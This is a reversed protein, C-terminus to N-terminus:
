AISLREGAYSMAFASRKPFRSKLTAIKQKNTNLYATRARSCLTNRGSSTKYDSGSASGKVCGQGGQPGFWCVQGNSLFQCNSGSQTPTIGGEGFVQGLGLSKFGHFCFAGGKAQSDDCFGGGFYMLFVLSLGGITVISLADM